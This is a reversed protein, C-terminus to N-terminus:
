WIQDPPPGPDYKARLANWFALQTANPAVNKDWANTIIDYMGAYESPVQAAAMRLVPARGDEQAWSQVASYEAQTIGTPLSSAVTSVPINQGPVPALVQGSPLTQGGPAPLSPVSTTPAPTTGTATSAAPTATAYNEYLRYAVYAGGALLAYMLWPTEKKAAM